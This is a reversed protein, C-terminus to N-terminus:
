EDELWTQIMTLIFLIGWCVVLLTSEREAADHVLLLFLLSQNTLVDKKTAVASM